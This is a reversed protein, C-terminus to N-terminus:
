RMSHGLFVKKVTTSLCNLQFGTIKMLVKQMKLIITTNWESLMLRCVTSVPTLMLLVKHVIGITATSIALATEMLIICTSIGLGAPEQMSDQNMYLVDSLAVIWIHMAVMTTYRILLFM